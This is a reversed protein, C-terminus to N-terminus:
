RYTAISIAIAWTVLSVIAPFFAYGFLSGNGKNNIVTVSTTLFSVAGIFAV